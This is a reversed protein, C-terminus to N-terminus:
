EEKEEGTDDKRRKKWTEFEEKSNVDLFNERAFKSFEDWEHSLFPKIEPINRATWLENVVHLVDFNDTGQRLKIVGDRWKIAKEFEQKAAAKNMEDEFELIIQNYWEPPTRDKFPKKMFTDSNELHKERIAGSRQWEFAQDLIERYLNEAMEAQKKDGVLKVVSKLQYAGQEIMELSWWPKASAWWYQDSALAYDLMERAKQFSKGKESSSEEAQHVSKIALKTLEWQKKHIPNDPDNWLIFSKAETPKTKEQDLWFDQEENTWTSPRILTEEVPLGSNLLESALTPEFFQHGLIDFLMKEHGVRHHGFTEADMVCFWYADDHIDQTEKILDEADHCVASLILSSVRKNRFFINLGSDKDKYLVKKSPIGDEKALQSACTWKFGMEAIINLVHSNVSMEPPFFGETKFNSGFYNESTEKNIIIQRKVEEEPILPLFAHYKASSTFEIQGRQYLKRLNELVERHGSELLLDILAANMNVIVKFRENKLFGRTMPLYSEHVIRDLIDKQQNHPQYFHLLFTIKM